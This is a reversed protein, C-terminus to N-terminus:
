VWRSLVDCNDFPIDLKPHFDIRRCEMKDSTFFWSPSRNWQVSLELSYIWCGLSNTLITVQEDIFTLRMVMGWIKHRFVFCSCMSFIAIVVSGIFTMFNGLDAIDSKSTSLEERRIFAFYCIFVGFSISILLFLIDTPRTVSKRDVVTISSLGIIKLGISLRAIFEPIKSKTTLSM